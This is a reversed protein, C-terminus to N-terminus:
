YEKRTFIESANTKLYEIIEDYSKIQYPIEILKIGKSKCYSRIYNDRPIQYDEFKLRGGFYEQPIYHQIGNYEIFVNYIPLYFDISTIGSKNIKNNIEIKYQRIFNISYEKLIKILQREGQSESCEKCGRGSLHDSPTQWFEGHEPCIICVKTYNNVYEVKSYDYKNGHVKISKEVFQETTSRKSNATSEFGCKPCGHGRLHHDPTQYFEGHIPCIIKIKTRANVYISQSYDYRSYHLAQAKCIFQELKSAKARGNKHDSCKKCGHGSLHHSAKQTFEGHEPCIITINEQANKYNAKSYDYKDGHVLRAREIFEQTTLKKAM